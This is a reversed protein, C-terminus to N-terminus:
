LLVHKEFFKCRTDVEREYVTSAATVLANVYKMATNIDNNNFEVFKKDIEIYIDVQHSPSTFGSQWRHRRHGPIIDIISDHFNNDHSLHRHQLYHPEHRDYMVGGEEMIRRGRSDKGLENEPGVFHLHTSGCRWDKPTIFEDAETAVVSTGNLQQINMAKEGKKKAIGNVQETNEDVAILAFVTDSGFANADGEDEFASTDSVLYKVGLDGVPISPGGYISYTTKKSVSSAVQMVALDYQQESDDIGVKMASVMFKPNM